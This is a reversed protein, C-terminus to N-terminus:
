IYILININLLTIHEIWYKSICYTSATSWTGVVARADGRRYSGLNNGINSSNGMSYRILLNM